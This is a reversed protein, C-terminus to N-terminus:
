NPRNTHNKEIIENRYPYHIKQALDFQYFTFLVGLILYSVVTRVVGHQTFRRASVTLPIPLTGYRHKQALHRILRIDEFKKTTSFGPSSQFVKTKVIICPGAGSAIRGGSLTFLLNLLSFLMPVLGKHIDPKFQPCALDLKRLTFSSILKQCFDNDPLTDADLFIIVDSAVSNGGINRQFGVNAQTELLTVPFTKIVTVTKDTSGGDVVIIEEASQTQSVLKDLLAGIIREENLTPVVISYSM